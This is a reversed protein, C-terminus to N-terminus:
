YILALLLVWYHWNVKRCRNRLVEFGTPNARKYYRCVGFNNKKNKPPAGSPGSELHLHRYAMGMKAPGRWAFAAGCFFLFFSFIRREVGLFVGVRRPKTESVDTLRICACWLDAYHNASFCPTLSILRARFRPLHWIHPRCYPM